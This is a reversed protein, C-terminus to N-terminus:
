APNLSVGINLSLLRSGNEDLYLTTISAPSVSLRQFLDLPLGLYFAIALKLPDAHSVCLILDKPEHLQALAELEACIRQQTEVFTEGGPFRM